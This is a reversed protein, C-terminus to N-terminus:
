LHACEPVSTLVTSDKLFQSLNDCVLDGMAQRTVHTASGVHPVLTVNNLAFLAEPVNPEDEFVDLGASGLRGDQLAKVLEAEDIVTGRAVNILIGEPGLAEIVQRNVLKATAAGGPTVVILTDVARAMETLDGFYEYPVDKKNRSHYVVTANFVSLKEAIREGIRGLGLIGVKRGEPSQTLPTNGESVWRGARVYQDNFVLERACALMLLIATDAVDENLVGPTHSVLIGRKVCVETDIADYGVGYCSILKLNPLGDMIRSPVGLHGNTAVATITKGHKELFAEVDEIDSLKHLSWDTAFRDLMRQTAGGILLLGPKM